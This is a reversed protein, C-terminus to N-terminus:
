GDTQDANERFYDWADVRTGDPLECIGREGDAEKVIVHEGGAEVCFVAAPNAMQVNDTACAAGSALAAVAVFSSTKM